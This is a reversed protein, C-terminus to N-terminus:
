KKKKKNSDKKKLKNKIKSTTLSIKKKIRKREDDMFDFYHENYVHVQAKKLLKISEKYNGNVDEIHAKLWYIQSVDIGKIKEAFRILKEAREIQEQWILYKIYRPYVDVYNTDIGIIKDFAEFADDFQSLKEAYIEGLFCLSPCHNEDYSLAYNLSETVEGWDSIFGGSADKAKLYYNDAITLGM